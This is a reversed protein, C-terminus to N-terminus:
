QPTDKSDDAVFPHGTLRQLEILARHAAVSAALRQRRAAAAETQLQAWDLYSLAGARYARGAAAEARALAPLLATDIRSAEAVAAALTAYAQALTAQLARSRVERELEIAALEAEAARIGPAARASSGLPLAVSGVLGWDGEAQLRRVGVEWELDPRAAARALQVRAERVREESAFRRLEPTRALQELLADLGDLSPLQALDPLAMAFAGSRGGWLLSLRLRALEARQAARQQEGEARIRAAEAALRVSEPAGGAAVRRAAAEVTGARQAADDAWLASEAEAAAADLYRRAVEALLDLQRAEREIDVGSLRADAVALRALRKDGRELVSALSVTLEAGHVGSADGSGLANEVSAGLTLPPRQAAREAEAALSQATFRLVALEPHTAIVRRFADELRLPEAAPALGAVGLLLVAMAAARTPKM